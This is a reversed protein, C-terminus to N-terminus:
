GAPSLRVPGTGGRVSKTILRSGLIAKRGKYIGRETTQDWLLTSTAHPAGSGRNPRHGARRGAPCPGHRAPQIILTHNSSQARARM